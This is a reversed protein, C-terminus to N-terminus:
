VQELRSALLDRRALDHRLQEPNEFAIADFGVRAAALVNKANDDIYLCEAATRGIRALLLEFIAPDPKILGVDASVLITRFRDLFAFRDRAFPFTEASWNTLAHLEYGAENLEELVAVTGEIPGALMEPWREFYAAILPGHDPHRAAAEEIAAAFTRGRDQEENWASHCVEALFWEMRAEDDFLKRYLHRPNWDILVGGLDFVIVPGRGGGTQAM